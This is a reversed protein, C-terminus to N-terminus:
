IKIKYVPINQNTLNELSIFNVKSFEKSLDEQIMPLLFRSSEIFVTAGNVLLKKCVQLQHSEEFMNVGKKYSVYEFYYPLDDVNDKIFFDTLFNIHSQNFQDVLEGLPYDIGISKTYHVFSRNDRPYCPGGFGFGFKWRGSKKFCSLYDAAVDLDKSMGSSILVQGIMNAFTIELTAKCNGALKLIEGTAPSMTHMLTDSNSIKSFITKCKEAVELNETGISVVHPHQITKLVEGQASFTPSYVVHVGRHNLMQQVKVTTGPNSTSGIILIKNEISEPHDLYDKAVQLVSSIDYSGDPNSPTAVLVYVIDCQSIVQHNDITFEINKSEQLLEAIGPEISDTQKLTLADVYDKKYSSAIVNFGAKEFLLAYALGLRGVGILGINM